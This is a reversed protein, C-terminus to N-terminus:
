NKYNKYLNKQTKIEKWSQVLKKLTIYIDTLNLWYLFQLTFCIRWCLPSNHSFDKLVKIHSLSKSLEMFVYLPKGEPNQIALNFLKGHSQLSVCNPNGVTPHPQETPNSSRYHAIMLVVLKSIVNQMCKSTLHGIHRPCLNQLFRYSDIQIIEFNKM